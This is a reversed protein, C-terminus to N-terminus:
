HRRRLKKVAEVAALVIAGAVLGVGASAGMSALAAFLGGANAAWAEVAHGLAPIGHVLIGGGV